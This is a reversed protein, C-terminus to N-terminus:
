PSGTLASRRAKASLRFAGYQPVSVPKSATAQSSALGLDSARTGSRRSASPGLTAEQHQTRVVGFAEARVHAGGEQFGDALQGRRGQVAQFRGRGLGLAAGASAVSSAMVCASVASAGDSGSGPGM